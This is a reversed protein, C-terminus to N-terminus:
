GIQTKSESTHREYATLSQFMNKIWESLSQRKILINIKNLNLTTILLIPNTAAM